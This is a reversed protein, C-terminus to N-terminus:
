KIPQFTFVGTMEVHEVTCMESLREYKTTWLCKKRNKTSQFPGNLLLQKNHVLNM